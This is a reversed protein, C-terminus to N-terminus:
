KSVWSSILLKTELLQARPLRSYCRLDSRDPHHRLVGVVSLLTWPSHTKPNDELSDEVSAVETTLTSMVQAVSAFPGMQM